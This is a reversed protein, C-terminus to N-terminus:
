SCAMASITVCQIANSFGPFSMSKVHSGLSGGANYCITNCRSEAPEVRSCPTSLHLMHLIYSPLDAYSGRPPQELGFDIALDLPWTLLYKHLTLDAWTFALCSLPHSSTEYSDPVSLHLM